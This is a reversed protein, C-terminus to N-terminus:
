DLIFRVDRVVQEARAVAEARDAGTTIVLGARKTHDTTAQITEGPAIAIELRHVWPEARFQEVGEIARVRGTPPFFYRIAVGDERTARLADRSPPRGVAQLLAADLFDVGTGLRIQDSSMWGGSLRLAVEIVTAGDPGLVIDGKVTGTRAGLAYAADVTIKRVADRSAEALVSPQEGGDEIVFPLFRQADSYNRDIFGPVEAGDVFLMGETSIQPGPIFREVMLRKSPSVSMSRTWCDDLDQAGILRLVGRAGRGDVPKLVLDDGKRRVIDRLEDVSAVPAYWPVRVGHASLADKMALKDAALKASAVSIGPLGLAEIVTAVTVPVDTSMAIVGDIKKTHTRQWDLAAQAMGTADYTSMVVRHDVDAFGPADPNGDAAITTFGLAKARRLGPASEMGAGIAWLVTM